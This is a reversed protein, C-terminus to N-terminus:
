VFEQSTKEHSLKRDGASLRQPFLRESLPGHVCLGLGVSKEVDQAAGSPAALREGALVGRCERFFESLHV